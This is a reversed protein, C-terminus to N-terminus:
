SKSGSCNGNAGNGFEERSPEKSPYDVDPDNVMTRADESVVAWFRGNVSNSKKVFADVYSEYAVDNVCPPRWARIPKDVNIVIPNLLEIFAKQHNAIQIGFSKSKLLIIPIRTIAAIGLALSGFPDIVASALSILSETEHYRVPFEGYVGDLSGRLARPHAAIVIDLGSLKEISRLSESITVIYQEMSIAYPSPWIAYEPASPGGSDLYLLYNEKSSPIHKRNAYEADLTHIYRVITKEGVISHSVPEIMTGTWLIDLPRLKVRPVFGRITLPTNSHRRKFSNYIRTALGSPNKYTLQVLEGFGNAIKKLRFGTRVHSPLHGTVVVGLKAKSEGLISYPNNPQHVQSEDFCGIAVVIDSSRLQNAIERLQHSSAVSWIRHHDDVEGHIGRLEPLVLDTADIVIFEFGRGEIENIDIRSSMHKTFPSETLLFFRM